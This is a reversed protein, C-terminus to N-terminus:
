SEPEKPSESECQSYYQLIKDTLEKHKFPKVIYGQIGLKICDRVDEEGSLSSAMIIVTSDDKHKERIEKLLLYGSMVPMMIDLLMIDPKWSRYEELAKEGDRAFRKEFVEDSLGKDYLLQASLDDEAILIKLREPM